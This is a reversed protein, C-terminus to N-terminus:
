MPFKAVLLNVIYTCQMLSHSLILTPTTKHHIIRKFKYLKIVNEHKLISDNVKHSYGDNYKSIKM